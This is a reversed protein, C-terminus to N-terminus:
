LGEKKLEDFLEKAKKSLRKPISVTLEIYHDGFGGKSIRPMGKGQLKIMEGSRTGAPIEDTVNGSLTSFIVSAGLVAETLSIEHESYVDAGERKFYSHPKVHLALYLNGYGGDGAEGKGQFEITQGDGIGRPIKILIKEIEQVRGAGHCQKCKQQPIKGAGECHACSMVQTFSGLFTRQEQRIEGRGHCTLCDLLATGPENKKGGCNRCQVYKRLSIEKEIGSFAEELTLIMDIQIDAGARRTKTRTRAGGGFFESFIDGFDWGEAPGGKGGSASFGGTNFGSFNGFDFGQFGSPGTGQSGFASGFQDYQTKKREDGLVQYAENIEKFKKEDGGKKDPHFEHALRRYAQKIEEKSASKSVGLTQYYDKM